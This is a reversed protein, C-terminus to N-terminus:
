KLTTISPQFYQLTVDMGSSGLIHPNDMYIYVYIYTCIYIYIHIICLIYICAHPHVYTPYNHINQINCCWGALFTHCVMAVRGVFCSQRATNIQFHFRKFHHVEPQNFCLGWISFYLRVRQYVLVYCHFDGNKIPFSM